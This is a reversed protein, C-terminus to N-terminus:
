ISKPIPSEMKNDGGGGWGMSPIILYYGSSGQQFRANQSCYLTESNPTSNRPNSCPRHSNPPRPSTPIVISTNLAQRFGARWVTHRSLPGTPIATRWGLLMQFCYNICFKPPMCLTNHPNRFHLTFTTM